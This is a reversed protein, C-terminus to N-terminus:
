LPDEHRIHTFRVDVADSQSQRAGYVWGDDEKGLELVMFRSIKIMASLIPPYQDPGMWGDSKVGLVALACVLASDYEKRTIRQQLLETCFELCAKHADTM